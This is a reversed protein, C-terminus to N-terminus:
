RPWSGHDLDDTLIRPWLSFECSFFMCAPVLRSLLETCVVRTWPGYVRTDFFNCGHERATSVAYPAWPCPYHTIHVSSFDSLSKTRNCRWVNTNQSLLQPLETAAVHVKNLTNNWTMKHALLGLVLQVLACCIKAVDSLQIVAVAIFRDVHCM